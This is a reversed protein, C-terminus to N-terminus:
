GNNNPTVNTTVARWFPRLNDLFQIGKVQLAEPLAARQSEPKRQEILPLNRALTMIKSRTDHDMSPIEVKLRSQFNGEGKHPCQAKLDILMKGVKAAQLVSQHGMGMRHLWSQMPYLDQRSGIIPIAYRTGHMTTPYVQEKFMDRTPYIGDLRKPMFHEM